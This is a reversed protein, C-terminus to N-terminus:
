MKLGDLRSTDEDNSSATDQLDKTSTRTSEYTNPGDDALKYESTHDDQMRDSSLQNIIIKNDEVTIQVYQNQTIGLIVAMKKPITVVFSGQRYQIKRIIELTEM